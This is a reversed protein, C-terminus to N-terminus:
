QRKLPLRGAANSCRIRSETRRGEEPFGSNGCHRLPLVPPSGLGRHSTPGSPDKRRKKKLPVTSPPPFRELM